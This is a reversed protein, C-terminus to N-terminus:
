GSAGDFVQELRLVEFGEFIHQKVVYDSTIDHGGIHDGKIAFRGVSNSAAGDVNRYLVAVNEQIFGYLYDDGVDHGAIAHDM